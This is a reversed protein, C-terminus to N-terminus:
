RSSSMLASAFSLYFTAWRISLTSNFSLRMECRDSSLYDSLLACVGFSNPSLRSAM